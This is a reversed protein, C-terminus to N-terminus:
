NKQNSGCWRSRKEEERRRKKEEKRRRKQKKTQKQDAIPHVFTSIITKIKCNRGDRGYEQLGRWISLSLYM